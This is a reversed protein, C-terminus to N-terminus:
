EFLCNVYIFLYLVIKKANQIFSILNTALVSVSAQFLKDLLSMEIFYIIGVLWISLLHYPCISFLILLRFSLPGDAWPNTMVSLAVPDNSQRFMCLRRRQPQLGWFSVACMAVVNSHASPALYPNRSLWTRIIFPHSARWTRSLGLFLDQISFIGCFIGLSPNRYPFSKQELSFLTWGQQQLLRAGDCLFTRM